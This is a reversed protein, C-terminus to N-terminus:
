RVSKQSRQYEEILKRAAKLLDAAPQCSAGLQKDITKSAGYCELVEIAHQYGDGLKERERALESELRRFEDWLGDPDCFKRDLGSWIKRQVEEDQSAVLSELQLTTLAQVVPARDKVDWEVLFPSWTGQADIITKM